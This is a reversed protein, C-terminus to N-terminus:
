TCMTLLAERTESGLWLGSNCGASRAQCQLGFRQTRRGAREPADQAVSVGSASRNTCSGPKSVDSAPNTRPRSIEHSIAFMTMGFGILILDYTTSLPGYCFHLM